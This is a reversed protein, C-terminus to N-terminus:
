AAVNWILAGPLAHREAFQWVKADYNPTSPFPPPRTAPADFREPAVWMRARGCHPPMGIRVAHHVANPFAQQLARSLLGSGAACWVEPPDMSVAAMQAAAEALVEPLDFGLPLFRAGTEAAYTKARAQVVTLYGPRCPRFRCGVAAAQASLPHPKSRAAIFFTARKGVDRASWALALQAYGYAPGGFVFEQEPWRQMLPTLFRRKTGGPLLDDRVVFMRGVHDVRPPPLDPPRM